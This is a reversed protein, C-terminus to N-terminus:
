DARWFRPIVLVIIAFVELRGMAMLLTLLMKSGDTLWEYNEIAGVHGMGPGINFLCAISSIAATKLNCTDNGWLQEVMM